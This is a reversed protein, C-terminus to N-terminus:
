QSSVCTFVSKLARLTLRTQMYDPRNYPFVMPRGPGGLFIGCQKLIAAEDYNNQFMSCKISSTCFNSQRYLM